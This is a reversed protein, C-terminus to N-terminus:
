TLYKLIRNTGADAKAQAEAAAKAETMLVCLSTHPCTYLPILVCLATHPCVYLYSPVACISTRPCTYLPILVSIHLYSSVYLSTHPCMYLPLSSVQM